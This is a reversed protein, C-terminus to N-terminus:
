GTHFLTQTGARCVYEWEAETPLRYARGEKASLWECFKVADHWIVGTVAEDDAGKGARHEPKFQRYQALTVETAGIHFPASITVRHAPREDPDADDFKAPHRTMQYDALPGDQGMVFSGAEIRVLKMGISNTMEQTEAARAIVACGVTAAIFCQLATKMPTTMM